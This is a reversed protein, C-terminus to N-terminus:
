SFAFDDATLAMHDVNVLLISVTGFTVRANAGADTVTVQAFGTAGSSIEILDTGDQFDTIRDNGSTKDFVFVDRSADAGGTLTDNGTGGIMRDAGGGGSLSDSGAEGNVFDKGSGGLLGFMRDNGARGEMYDAGTSNLDILDNGSLIKSFIVQDDARSVTRAAAFYDVAAVSIGRLEIAYYWKQDTQNVFWNYSATITGGTVLSGSVEIGSGYIEFTRTTTATSTNVIVADEYTVDHVLYNM